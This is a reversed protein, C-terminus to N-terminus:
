RELDLGEGFGRNKGDMWAIVDFVRLVSIEDSLGAGERISLLRHHLAAEDARLAERVPNLHSRVTGLVQSVVSDWIPYLWPRKRAILKTAKTRGIGPLAWLATELDWAPWGPALLDPEDVLDRDPGIARLLASLAETETDLIARAAMPPIQVSLFSVAVLDDATFRDVEGPRDGTSSWSDFHADEGGPGAFDLASRWDGYARAPAGPALEEDVLM